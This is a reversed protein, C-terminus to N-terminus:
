GRGSRGGNCSLLGRGHEVEDAADEAPDVRHHKATRQPKRREAHQQQQADLLHPNDPPAGNQHLDDRGGYAKRRGHHQRMQIVFPQAAPPLEIHRDGHHQHQQGKGRQPLGAGVGDLGVSAPQVEPKGGYLRRFKQLDGKDQRQRVVKGLHARRHVFAAAQQFDRRVGDKRHQQDQQLLVPAHRQYHQEDHHDHEDHRPKGPPPDQQPHGPRRGKRRQRPEEQQIVVLLDAKLQQLVRLGVCQSLCELLQLPADGEAGPLQEADANEARVM